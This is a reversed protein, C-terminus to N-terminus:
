GLTCGGNSMVTYESGASWSGSINVQCWKNAADKRAAKCYSGIYDPSSGASTCTYDYKPGTGSAVGVGSLPKMGIKNWQTADTNSDIKVFAGGTDINAQQGRMMAGLMQNAEAVTAKEPQALFRPLTMSALIGLIVVVILIEILTFGKKHKM